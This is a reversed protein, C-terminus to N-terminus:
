ARPAARRTRGTRRLAAGLVLEAYRRLAEADTAAPLGARQAFSRLRREPLSAVDKPAARLGAPRSGAYAAPEEAVGATGPGGAPYALRRDLARLLRLHETRLDVSPSRAVSRAGPRRGRGGIADLLTDYPVGLVGALRILDALSIRRQGMEYRDIASASRHLRAGLAAQSLGARIRLSRIREGLRAYLEAARSTSM